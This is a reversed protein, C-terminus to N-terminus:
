QVEKEFYLWDFYLLHRLTNASQGMVQRFLNCVSKQGVAVVTLRGSQVLLVFLWCGVYLLSVDDVGKGGVKKKKQYGDLGGGSKTWSWTIDIFVLLRTKRIDEAYPADFKRTLVAIQNCFNQHCCQIWGATAKHELCIKMFVHRM